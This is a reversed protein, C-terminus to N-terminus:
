VCSPGLNVSGAVFGLAWDVGCHCPYGVGDVLGVIIEDVLVM